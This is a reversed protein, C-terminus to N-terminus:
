EPPPAAAGMQQEMMQDLQQPRQENLEIAHDLKRRVTGAEGYVPAVKEFYETEARGEPTPAPEDSGRPVCYAVAVAVIALALLLQMM